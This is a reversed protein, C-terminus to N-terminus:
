LADGDMIVESHQRSSIEHFYPYIGAQRAQDAPSPEYCKQFLDM